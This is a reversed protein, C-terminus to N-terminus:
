PLKYSGWFRLSNTSSEFSDTYQRSSEKPPLRRVFDRLQTLTPAGVAARQVASNGTSISLNELDSSITSCDPWRSRVESISAEMSSLLHELSGGMSRARQRSPRRLEPHTPPLETLKLTPLCRLPSADLTYSLSYVLGKSNKVNSSFHMTHLRQTGLVM